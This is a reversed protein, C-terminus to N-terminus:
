SEKSRLLLFTAFALLAVGAFVVQPSTEKLGSIKRVVHECNRETIHYPKGVEHMAQKVIESEPLDGWRGHNTITNGNCVQSLQDESVTLKRKSAHVVRDHSVVIMFHRYLSMPMSLVDGINYM